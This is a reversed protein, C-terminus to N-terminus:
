IVQVSINCSKLKEKNFEYKVEDKEFYYTQSDDDEYITYLDSFAVYWVEVHYLKDKIVFPKSNMHEVQNVTMSTFKINCDNDIYNTRAVKTLKSIDFLHYFDSIELNTKQSNHVLDTFSKVTNENFDSIMSLKANKIFRVRTETM